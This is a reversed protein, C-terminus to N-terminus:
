DCHFPPIVQPKIFSKGAKYLIISDIMCLRVPFRYSLYRTIFKSVYITLFRFSSNLSQLEWLKSAWQAVEGEDKYNIIKNSCSKGPSKGM